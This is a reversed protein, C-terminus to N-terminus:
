MVDFADSAEFHVVKCEPGEIQGCIKGKKASNLPFLVWIHTVFYM